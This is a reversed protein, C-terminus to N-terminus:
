YEIVLNTYFFATEGDHNRDVSGTLFETTDNAAFSTYLLLKTGNGPVEVPNAYDILEYYKNIESIYIYKVVYDEANWAVYDYAGGPSAGIPYNFLDISTNNNVTEVIGLLEGNGLVVADGTNFDVTFNTGAGTITKNNAAFTITGPVAANEVARMMTLFLLGFQHPQKVQVDKYNCFLGIKHFNFNSFPNYKEEYPWGPNEDVQLRFPQRAWDGAAISIDAPSTLDLTKEVMPTSNVTRIRSNYPMEKKEPETVNEQCCSFLVISLLVCKLSAGTRALHM